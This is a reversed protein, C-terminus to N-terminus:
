EIIDLFRSSIWGIPKFKNFKNSGETYLSKGKEPNRDMIVFWWVRGTSDTSKAYVTGTDGSNYIASINQGQIADFDYEGDKPGKKIEPSYRLFYPTNRIEFKIPDIWDTPLITLDIKAISNVVEFLQKKTSYDFTVVHDVYGGCCSFEAVIFRIQNTENKRIEFIAGYFRQTERFKGKDNKYIIVMEGENGNWGCYILESISDCDTDFLHFSIQNKLVSNIDNWPNDKIVEFNSKLLEPTVKNQEWLNWDLKNRYDFYNFDQSYVTTSIFLSLIYLTEKM